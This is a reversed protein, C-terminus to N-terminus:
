IKSMKVSFKLEPESQNESIKEYYIKNFDNRALGQKGDDLM